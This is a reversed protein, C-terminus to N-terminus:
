AATSISGDTKLAQADGAVVAGMITGVLAISRQADAGAMSQLKTELFHHGQAPRRFSPRPQDRDAMKAM